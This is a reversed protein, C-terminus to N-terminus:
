RRRAFGRESKELFAVMREAEASDPLESRVRAFAEEPRQRSRFVIRYAQEVAEILENALGRREMGIRNVKMLRAPYGHAWCFPALDQMLGSMGALFGSEGVRCFQLVASNASVVAYDDIQVHGAIQVNNSLVVHSGVHTDHGVHMGVMLLNDDGISTTGGGGATGAHVTVYERIQNSAGITVKTHEGRYDLAQPPEGVCAFPFVETGPGIETDGTVYAHGHLITGEGLRVQPGVVAHPGIEVTADLEAKSDVVASPHIKSM